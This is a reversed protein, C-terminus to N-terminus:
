SEGMTSLRLGSYEGKVQLRARSYASGAVSLAQCIYDGADTMHVPEIVLTGSETM